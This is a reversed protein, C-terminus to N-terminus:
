GNILYDKELRELRKELGSLRATINQILIDWQAAQTKIDATVVELGIRIVDELTGKVDTM